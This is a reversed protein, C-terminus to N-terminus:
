ILDLLTVSLADHGACAEYSGRYGRKNWCQLHLMSRVDQNPSTTQTYWHTGLRSRKTAVGGLIQASLCACPVTLFGSLSSLPVPDRM